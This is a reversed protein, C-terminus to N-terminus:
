IKIQGINRWLSVMFVMFNPMMLTLLDLIKFKTLSCDPSDSVFRPNSESSTQLQSLLYIADPLVQGSKRVSWPNFLPTFSVLPRFYFKSPVHFYSIHSMQFLQKLFDLSRPPISFFGLFVHFSSSFFRITTKLYGKGLKKWTKKWNRDLNTLYM